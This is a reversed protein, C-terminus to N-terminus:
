NVIGNWSVMIQPNLFERCMAFLDPITVATSLIRELITLICSNSSWNSHRTLLMLWFWTIKRTPEVGVKTCDLMQSTVMDAFQGILENSRWTLQIGLLSKEETLLFDLVTGFEKSTILDDTANLFLPVILDVCRIVIIGPMEDLVEILNPLGKTLVEHSDNGIDCMLLSVYTALPHKEEDTLQKLGPILEKKMVPIVNICNNEMKQQQAMAGQDMSHLKLKTIMKWAWAVYRKRPDPDVDTLSIKKFENFNPFKKVTAGLVLLAARSHFEHGLALGSPESFDWNLYSIVLKAVNHEPSELEYNEMLFAIVDLTDTAPHWTHFPLGKLMQLVRDAMLSQNVQVERLVIEIVSPLRLAVTALLDKVFKYCKENIDKLVFGIQFLTRIIWDVLEPDEPGSMALVSLTELIFYLEEMTWDSITCLSSTLNFEEKARRRFDDTFGNRIEKEDPFRTLLYYALMWLTNPELRSYNLQSLYQLVSRNSALNKCVLCIFMNYETALRNLMEGEKPHDNCKYLDYVGTVLEANWKVIGALRKLFTKYRDEQYIKLGETILQVFSSSFLVFRLTNITYLGGDSLDLWTEFITALPLRDLIELFLSENPHKQVSQDEETDEGDSDVIAWNTDKEGPEELVSKHWQQVPRLCMWMLALWENILEANVPRDRAAINVTKVVQVAVETPCRLVHSMLFLQDELLSRGNLVILVQELWTKMNEKFHRTTTKKVVFHFLTTLAVRLEERQPTDHSRDIIDQVLASITLVQLNRLFVKGRMTDCCIKAFNMLSDRFSLAWNENYTGSIYRVTSKVTSSCCVQTFTQEKPFVTWIRGRIKPFSDKLQGVDVKLNHIECQVKFYADLERYLQSHRMQDHYRAFHQPFQTEFDLVTDLKSNYYLQNREIESYPVTLSIVSPDVKIKPQNRQIDDLIARNIQQIQYFDLESLPPASPVADCIQPPEDTDETTLTLDRIESVPVASLSEVNDPLPATPEPDFKEETQMIEERIEIPPTDTVEEVDRSSSSSATPEQVIEYM